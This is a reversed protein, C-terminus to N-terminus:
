YCSDRGAPEVPAASPVFGNPEMFTGVDWRQGAALERTYRGLLAGPRGVSVEAIAPGTFATVVVGYEGPGATM